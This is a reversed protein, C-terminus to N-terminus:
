GPLLPMGHTMIEDAGEYIMRLAVYLIVLLGIWAIWRHSNLLRAIGASAVGLLAVSLVLGFVLAQPHEGAAGAVALVNDLSMSVDAVIIQLVAEGLTKEPLGGAGAALGGEGAAVEARRALRLESYMKWAVWLLLLGGALLLGTIALLRTAVLAFGIRMVTAAGIGCELIEYGGKGRM